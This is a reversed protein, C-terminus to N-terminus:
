VHPKQQFLFAILHIETAHDPQLKVTSAASFVGARGSPKDFM